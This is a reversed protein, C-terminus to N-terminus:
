WRTRRTPLLLDILPSAWVAFDALTLPAIAVYHSLKLQLGNSRATFMCYRIRSCVAHGLLVLWLVLILPGLVLAALPASMMIVGTVITRITVRVDQWAKYRWGYILLNRLWRSQRRRHSTLTDPYRTSVVSGAVYRIHISHAHLRKALQYDTGTAANFTMGGIQELATRIVVSNGGLLGGIYHSQKAGVATDTAWLLVPLLRDVQEPLPRVNGSAAQEGEEVLPALLRTLAEDDFLCDADTFYLIEGHAHDLCRALARQKGEGPRQEIVTVREGAFRSARAFTDDSGGACLVLEIDPYSLALFSEIHAEVRAGENWAAVLACVKPTRSLAPVASREGRLRDALARDQRWQRWNICAVAALGAALLPGAHRGTLRVIQNFSLLMSLSGRLRSIAQTDM